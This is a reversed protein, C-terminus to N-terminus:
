VVVKGLGQVVGAIVVVANEATVAAATIFSQFGAPRSIYHDCPLRVVVARPHRAEVLATAVAM